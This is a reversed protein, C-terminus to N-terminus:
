GDLSSTEVYSIGSESSCYLPVFDAPVIEESNVRIIDGPKIVSWTVKNLNNEHYVCAM